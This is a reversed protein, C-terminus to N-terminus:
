GDGLLHRRLFGLRKMSGYPTEAAGHGAGPIVVLEHDKGARVLAASVQLTSSPDVNDDLEGVVLMLRGQLRAADTVNSSRAYSEDVPWGMWLENWWIKDMRNDHCGCDAVGVRYVDPFDLMARLASQGGASGGYIGVRSMDMWPRTAAAARLWAVHDPLGSDRLNKWCVDHFRKGRWNTGMGDVMAVVFGADAIARQGHWPAFAKPVHFDQPGAYICEVVPRVTGDAASGRPRWLVGWVDTSGDRGKAVVREPWTWGEAVLASADARGLEALLAGDSARRLERVPALDVRSWTDVYWAGDPSWLLEHTGDGETLRVPEGGDVPVRVFHEHYPDQAPDIGMVRLLLERREFDVREVARVMWRGATVQRPVGGAPVDVLYLHNWGDREGMWLLEDEGLWHVWSKHAYDVFTDSREEVVTRAAGSAADVSVLRLVQHGRANHLFTFSRSDAAWRLGDNSWPEAFSARDVPVETGDARFLRPWRREIRDGPKLYQITRLRPEVRDQPSSEVAHVPHDQAREVEWAVVFRRDPSWAHPGGLAAAAPPLAPEPGPAPGPMSPAPPAPASPAAPASAPPRAPGARDLEPVSVVRAAGGHSPTVELRDADIWRVRAAPDRVLAAWDQARARSVAAGALLAAVLVLNARARQMAPRSYRERETRVRAAM